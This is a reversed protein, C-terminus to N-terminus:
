RLVEGLAVVVDDLQHDTMHSFLPLTIQTRSALETDPLSERPYLARYASFEHIGPYMVTTGIGRKLLSRRVETQRGPDALMVPMMYCASEAVEEDRYPVVIESLGALRERYRLVLERRRAIEEHLRTMRSLLLAARPEDMRYNFGLATVDYGTAQGSHREMTGATMGQSRLLRARAAVEDDDTALAGGEGVALVKNSFFSFAGALGFTGLKRGDRTAGPSHACDEILALGRKECLATLREVAAGYGAYHVAIVAKTRETILREVHDPDIGLDHQGVIEAFVPVGGAQLVAAATAVFTFAPVIVQDGREVGACLMSLHLAATCSSTAVVHRCGLEEAFAAEFDAVRPGMTWWGSRLTAEVADLDGQEM